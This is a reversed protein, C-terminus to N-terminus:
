NISQTTKLTMAFYLEKLISDRKIFGVRSNVGHLPCVEDNYRLLAKIKTKPCLIVCYDQVTVYPHVKLSIFGTINATPHTLHYEENDRQKLTIFIGKNFEGPGVKVAITLFPHPSSYM